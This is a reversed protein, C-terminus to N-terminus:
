RPQSLLYYKRARVVVRWWGSDFVLIKTAGFGEWIVFTAMATLRALPETSPHKSTVTSRRRKPTKWSLLRKKQIEALVGVHIWLLALPWKQMASKDNPNLLCSLMSFSFRYKHIQGKAVPFVLSTWALSRGSESLEQHCLLLSTESGKARTPLVWQTDMEAMDLCYEGVVPETSAPQHSSQRSSTQTRSGTGPRPPLTGAAEKDCHPFLWSRLKQCTLTHM